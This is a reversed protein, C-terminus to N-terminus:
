PNLGPLEPLVPPHIATGEFSTRMENRVSRALKEIAAVKRRQEPSLSVPNTRNVESNLEAVLKLLKNTNSVMSKHMAATLQRRQRDLSVPDALDAKQDPDVNGNVARLPHNSVDETLTQQSSAQARVLGCTFALLLALLLLPRGVLGLRGSFSRVSGISSDNITRIREASKM